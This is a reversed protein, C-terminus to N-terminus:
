SIGNLTSEAGDGGNAECGKVSGKVDIMFGEFYSEIGELDGPVTSMGVWLDPRVIVVAGEAHNVGYWYHADEDPARDDYLVTAVNRLNKLHDLELIPEAEYPLRKTVLVLNFIERGGFRTYFGGPGLAASFKALANRVPDQLNSGFALIHFTSAGTMKDYLYGTTDIGFCIRPNPARVGNKVSVARKAINGPNIVSQAYPADLGLLFKDQTGFFTGLFKLDGEATGDSAPPEEYRNEGEEGQLEELNALPLHSNCVFRLYSGSVKIIRNAFARRELDYTPGLSSLRARNRSILGIKWALNAADMISANLGFAGM